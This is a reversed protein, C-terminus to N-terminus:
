PKRESAGANGGPKGNSAEMTKAYSESLERSDDGEPSLEAKVVGASLLIEALADKVAMAAYRIEKPAEDFPKVFAFARELSCSSVRRCEIERIGFEKMLSLVAGSIRDAAGSMAGSASGDRSANAKM